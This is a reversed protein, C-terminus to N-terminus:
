QVAHSFEREAQGHAEWLRAYIPCDRLLDAHVGQGVIRGDDMVVIRDAHRLTALRHAITVVTRGQCLNALAEHIARESLPDAFATAEDLVIVPADKLIARAISLRQRQGGSLTHGREAVVTDYGQPLGVIFDHIQAAEAAAVVQERTAQPRGLRINEFITDHFLFVDQFVCAVMSNLRALPFDAIDVGGLRVTGRDPPWFRAALHALTTKGAGSRGVLATHTGHPFAVTVGALAPRDGHSFWVDEFSLTFDPPPSTRTGEELPSQGMIAALREMGALVVRLSSTFTVVRMLPLCVGMGVTLCLIFTPGDLTGNALLMGGVPLMFVLSAGLVATFAVWGPAAARTFKAVTDSYRATTERLRGISVENRGFTKIVPIARIFDVIAANMRGLDAYYGAVKKGAGRWLVIQMAVALPVPMMAALGLRWDVVLLVAAGALTATVASIADPLMHAFFMELREIDDHLVRKLDGAGTRLLFGLPLRGLHRAAELWMLFILDFAAVHSCAGAAAMLLWRLVLGGATLWVAQLMADQDPVPALLQIALLWITVLPVLTLVAAGSGAIGAGALLWARKRMLSLLLKM